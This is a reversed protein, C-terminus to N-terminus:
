LFKIKRFYNIYRIIYNKDISKWYFGIFNLYKESFNSDLRINSTYILQKDKDLDHIIGSLIEKRNDDELLQTIINTMESNSVPLLKIDMEALTDVFLQLSLLNTNYIHFVCAKSSHKGVQLIADACLDVPTMEIAHQLSYDPFVGIDIFSKIRKAFANEEINRQFMGDSYRSVINGVRM